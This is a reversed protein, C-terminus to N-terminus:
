RTPAVEDLVATLAAPLDNGGGLRRYHEVGGRLLVLTPVGRIAFRRGLQPEATVDVEVTKFRERLAAPLQQLKDELTRCPGCTPSTFVLLLPADVRLWPPLEAHEQAGVGVQSVPTFQGGTPLWVIAGAPLPLQRVGEATVQTSSLDLVRLSTAPQLHALGADTFLCGAVHLEELRTLRAVSRLCADTLLRNGSLNLQELAACLSIDAVQEDTLRCRELTLDYLKALQGLPRCDADTLRAGIVQLVRVDALTAIAELGAATVKPARPLRFTRLLPFAACVKQVDQDTVKNSLLAVGVVAPHELLRYEAPGPRDAFMLEALADAPVEVESGGDVLRSRGDPWVLMVRVDPRGALALVRDGRRSTPATM